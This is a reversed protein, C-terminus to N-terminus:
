GAPTAASYLRWAGPVGKLEHRGADTLEIGSGATLDKVTSTVLVTRPSAHSMVRAAVVVSLGAM